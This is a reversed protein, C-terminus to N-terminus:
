RRGAIRYSGFLASHINEFHNSQVNDNYTDIQAQNLLHRRNAYFTEPDAHHIALSPNIYQNFLTDTSAQGKFVLQPRKAGSATKGTKMGFDMPNARYFDILNEKAVSVNFYPMGLGQAYPNKTNEGFGGGTRTSINRAYSFGFLFYDAASTKQLEQIFKEINFLRKDGSVTNWVENKGALAAVMRAKEDPSLNLSGASVGKKMKDRFFSTISNSIARPPYIINIKGGSSKLQIHAEEKEKTKENEIAVKIDGQVYDAVNDIRFETLRNALFLILFEHRRDRPIMSRRRGHVKTADSIEKFMQDISREKKSLVNYNVTIGKEKLVKQIHDHKMRTKIKQKGDKNKLSKNIEEGHRKIDKKFERELEEVYALAEKNNMGLFKAM